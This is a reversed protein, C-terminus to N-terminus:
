MGADYYTKPKKIGKPLVSLHRYPFSGVLDKNGKKYNCFKHAPKLNDGRKGGKSKPIEHDRSFDKKKEIVGGCLHCIMGESWYIGKFKSHKESM